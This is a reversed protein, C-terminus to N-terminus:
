TASKDHQQPGAAPLKEAEVERTREDDGEAPGCADPCDLLHPNQRVRELAQRVPEVYEPPPPPAEVWGERLLQEHFARLHALYKEPDHDFHADIALRLEHLEDLVEDVANRAEAPTLRPLSAFLAPLDKIPIGRPASSPEAVTREGKGGCSSYREGPSIFEGATLVEPEAVEVSARHHHALMQAKHLPRAFVALLPVCLRSRSPFPHVAIRTASLTQVNLLFPDAAEYLSIGHGAFRTPTV